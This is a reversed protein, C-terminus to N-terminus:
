GGRGTGLLELLTRWNGLRRDDNTTPKFRRRDFFSLLYYKYPLKRVVQLGQKHDNKPKEFLKLQQLGERFQPKWDREDEEIEFKVIEKPKVTALSKWVNRTKALEILSSLSTFVERLAFRKRESWDRNKGRILPDLRKLRKM